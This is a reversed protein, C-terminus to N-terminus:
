RSCTSIATPSTSCSSATPSCRGATSRRAGRQHAPADAGRGLLLRRRRPHRDLQRAPPRPQAPRRRARDPGPARLAVPLHLPQARGRGDGPRDRLLDLGPEPQAYCAAHRQRPRGRRDAAAAGFLANANALALGVGPDPAYYSTPVRRAARRWIRSATCPPATPSSASPQRSTIRERVEYIGFYSRTRSGEFSTWSTGAAM